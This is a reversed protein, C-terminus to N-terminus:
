CLSQSGYRRLCATDGHGTVVLLMANVPLADYLAKVREDTKALILEFERSIPLDILSDPDDENCTKLAAVEAVLAANQEPNQARRDLYTNVDALQTWVFDM